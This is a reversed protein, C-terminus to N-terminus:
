ASKKNWGRMFVNIRRCAEIIDETSGAFSMRVTQHGRQLDFDTGPTMAVGGDLLGRCFAEADDTLDSIDAYMYFAGGVKSLKTFGAKPLETNM